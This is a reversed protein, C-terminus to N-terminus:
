FSTKSNTELQQLSPLHGESHTQSYFNSFFSQLYSGSKPRASKGAQSFLCKEPQLPKHVLLCHGDQEHNLASRFFQIPWTYLLHPSYLLFRVQLTLPQQNEEVNREM